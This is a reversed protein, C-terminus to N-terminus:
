INRVSLLLSAADWLHEFLQFAQIYSSFCSILEGQHTLSPTRSGPSATLPFHAQM